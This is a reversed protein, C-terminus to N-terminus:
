PSTVFSSRLYVGGDNVCWGYIIPADPQRYSFLEEIWKECWQEGGKLTDCPDQATPTTIAPTHYSPLCACLPLISPMELPINPKTIGGKFNTIVFPVVKKIKEKTQIRSTSLRGRCGPRKILWRSLWIDSAIQEMYNSKCNFILRWDGRRILPIPLDEDLNIKYYMNVEFAMVDSYERMKMSHLMLVFHWPNHPPQPSLSYQNQRDPFPRRNLFPEGQKSTQLSLVWGKQEWQFLPPVVNHDSLRGSLSCGSFLCQKRSCLSMSNPLFVGRRNGNQYHHIPVYSFVAKYYLISMKVRTIQPVELPTEKHWADHCGPLWSQCIYVFLVGGSVAQEHDGGQKSCIGEWPFLCIHGDPLCWLPRYAWRQPCAHSLSTHM